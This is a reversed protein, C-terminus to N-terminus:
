SGMMKDGADLIKTLSAVNTGSGKGMVKSVQDAIGQQASSLAGGSKLTAVVGKIASIADGLQKATAHQAAMFTRCDAESMNGCSYMGTSDRKNFPDNGTYGYTEVAM